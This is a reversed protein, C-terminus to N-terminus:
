LVSSFQQSGGTPGTTSDVSEADMGPRPVLTGALWARRLWFLFFFTMGFESKVPGEINLRLIGDVTVIGVIGGPRLATSWTPLLLLKGEPSIPKNRQSPFSDKPAEPQM